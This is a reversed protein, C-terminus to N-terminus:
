VFILVKETWKGAFKAELKDLLEARFNADSERQEAHFRLSEERHLQAKKAEEEVKTSVIKMEETLMSITQQMLPIQEASM